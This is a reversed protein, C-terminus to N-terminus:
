KKQFIRLKASRARPNKGKEEDTPVVPKKTIVKGVGEQELARFTHKVIRDEISHFTIIVLRGESKLLTVSCSIFEKLAELEDNVAIRLAQFTRTAPHLKGRRYFGPVAGTVIDALQLSSNIEGKERATTIAHAIRGSFREEGYGRLVNKIDAEAWTNVIDKATFLYAEPNGYTMLLPEDHKFSLGKGGEEFQEIRWGLDALIGDVKQIDFKELVQDIDRFNANALYVNEGELEEAAEIATSDIDLAILTGASNLRSLIEQAHGGSGLTADVITAGPAVHLADVAEKSLVSEHGQM